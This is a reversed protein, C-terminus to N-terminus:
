ATLTVSCSYGYKYYGPKYAVVVRYTQTVGPVTFAFKGASSEHTTKVTYWRKHTLKQLTVLQHNLHPFATGTLKTSHGHAGDCRLVIPSKPSAGAPGGPERM